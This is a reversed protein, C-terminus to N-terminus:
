SHLVTAKEIEMENRIAQEASLLECKAITVNKGTAAIVTGPSVQDITSLEMGTSQMRSASIDLVNWDHFVEFKMILRESQRKPTSQLVASGPYRPTSGVQKGKLCTLECPTHQVSKM